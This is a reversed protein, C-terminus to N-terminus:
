PHAYTACGAAAAHCWAGFLRACSCCSAQQQALQQASSHQGKCGRERRLYLIRVCMCCSGQQASLQASSHQGKCGRQRRVQSPICVPMQLQRLTLCLSAATQVLRMPSSSSTCQSMQGATSWTYRCAKTSPATCTCRAMRMTSTQLYPAAHAHVCPQFKCGFLLTLNGAAQTVPRRGHQAPGLFPM